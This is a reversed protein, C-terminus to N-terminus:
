SNSEPYLIRNLAYVLDNESVYTGDSWYAEDDITITLTNHAEDIVYGDALDNELKGNENIRFLSAFLLDVIKLAADNTYAYAPDFDYIEQSLYMYIIAGKDNEDRKACSAFATVAMILCLVAALIRKFM